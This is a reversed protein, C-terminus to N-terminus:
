CGSRRESEVMELFSKGKLMKVTVQQQGPRGLIGETRAHWVEGFTGEGIKQRIFLKERPFEWPVEPQFMYENTNTMQSETDSSALVLKPQLWPSSKLDPPFARPNQYTAHAGLQDNQYGHPSRKDRPDGRPDMSRLPILGSVSYLAGHGALSPQDLDKSKDLANSRMWDKNMEGVDSEGPNHHLDLVFPSQGRIPRSDPGRTPRESHYASNDMALTSGDATRENKRNQRTTGEVLNDVSRSEDEMIYNRHGKSQLECM